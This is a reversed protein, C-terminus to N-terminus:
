WSSRDAVEKETPFYILDKQAEQESLQLQFGKRDHFLTIMWATAFCHKHIHDFEFEKLTRIWPFPKLCSRNCYEKVAQRFLQPDYPSDITYVKLNSFFRYTYWFSSIGYF